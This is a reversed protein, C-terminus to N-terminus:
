LPPTKLALNTASMSLSLCIKNIMVNELVTLDGFLGVGQLTRAIGLDVLEFPKPFDHKKGNLHLEGSDPTVLGCLANFLTTKGAGNPGILGVVENNNLDLNVNSLAKLGGFNVSLSKISLLKEDSVPTSELCM